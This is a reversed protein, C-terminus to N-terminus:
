PVDLPSIAGAGRGAVHTYVETTKVDRHGLLEQVTRIDAGGQLLHTAFSHRFVHPSVRREVGADEAARRVRRQVASPGLHHLLLRGTRPDPAPRAAPFVYRWTWASEAAPYKQALAGPLSVAATGAVQEHEYRAREVDLHLRLPARVTDALVTVRDSGGKGERVTLRRGDLDLDGMRLRLGESLRLGSGYLLGCILRYPEPLAALVARVEARTLVVPLRKPRRVRAVGAIRQLPTGLVHEYLFLVAHLAQNQTSASVGRSEALHSLFATLDAESLTAPHRPRGRADRHFLCYRRVWHAYAQETRYSYHLRRCTTRLRDLLRPTNPPRRASKGFSM